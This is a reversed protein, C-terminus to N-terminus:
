LAMEMQVNSLREPALDTLYQDSLDVGVYNRGLRLAAKGTTGSGSFPDFVTCPQVQAADPCTCGPAWGTTVTQIPEDFRNGGLLGHDGAPGNTKVKRLPPMEKSTIRGWSAGCTPCCGHASTSAKIAIEPILEPFVAFHAGSFPKPNVVMALPDGEDSSLLGQFTKFFLDSSRLNREGTAYVDKDEREERHTGYGQGPVVPDGRKSGNRKFTAAKGTQIEAVPMKVAEADYFYKESKALLFISEITQAPRDTVSEPMGNRKIWPMASRLYWGDAQAALAFRAPIQMLNKPRLGDIKKSTLNEIRYPDGGEGRKGSGGSNASGIYSDSINWWMVGDDRLVRWMERAVLILHGIYFSIDRELGLAARQAPVTIPALGPMPSYEVAPWEVSQDGDYARLGFNIRRALSWAISM